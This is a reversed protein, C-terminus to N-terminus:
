IGPDNMIAKQQIVRNNKRQPSKKYIRLFPYEILLSVIYSIGLSVIFLLNQSLPLGLTPVFIHILYLPYSIRALMSIIPSEIKITYLSLLLAGFTISLWVPYILTEKTMLHPSQYITQNSFFYIFFSSLSILGLIFAFKKFRRGLTKYRIIWALIVGITLEDYRSHPRIIHAFFWNSDDPLVNRTIYLRVFTASVFIITLGILIPKYKLKFLKIMGILIVPIILYFFWEIVLSWTGGATYNSNWIDGEFLYPIYTQLFFLNISMQKFFDLLNYTINKQIFMNIAITSLTAFLYVPYIRLVRNKYFKLFSFHGTKEVETFIAGGILFGSLVFFLDVGIWGLRFFPSIISQNYHFFVVGLVAFCRLLDAGPYRNIATLYFYHEKLYRLISIREKYLLM